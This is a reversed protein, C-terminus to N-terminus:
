RFLSDIASDSCLMPLVRRLQGPQFGGEFLGDTVLDCGGIGVLVLCYHALIVLSVRAAGITVPAVVGM